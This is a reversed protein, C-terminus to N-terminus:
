PAVQTPTPTFTSSSSCRPDAVVTRNGQFINEESTANHGFTDTVIIKYRTLKNFSLNNSDFISQGYYYAKATYGTPLVQSNNAYINLYEILANSLKSTTFVVGNDTEYIGMIKVDTNAGSDLNLKCSTLFSYNKPNITPTIRSNYNNNNIVYDSPKFTLCDYGKKHTKYLASDSGYNNYNNTATKSNDTSFITCLQYSYPPIIKYDFNTKTEPDQININSSLDSLSNPMKRNATYYNEIQYKISEFAQLRNNDLQIDKQSIPSGAIIIGGIILVLVFIGLLAISIYYKFM